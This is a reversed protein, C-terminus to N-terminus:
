AIRKFISLGAPIICCLFLADPQVECHLLEVNVRLSYGLRIPVRTFGCSHEVKMWTTPPPFSNRIESSDDLKLFLEQRELTRPVLHITWELEARRALCFCILRVRTKLIALSETNARKRTRKASVSAALVVPLDETFNPLVKWGERGNAIM